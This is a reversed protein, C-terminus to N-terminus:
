LGLLSTNKNEGRRISIYKRRPNNTDANYVQVIVCYINECLYANIVGVLFCFVVLVAIRDHTKCTHALDDLVKWKKENQFNLMQYSFTLAHAILTSSGHCFLCFNMAPVFSFLFNTHWRANLCKKSLSFPFNISNWGIQSLFAHVFLKLLFYM